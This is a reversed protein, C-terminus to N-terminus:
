SGRITRIIAEVVLLGLSVGVILLILNSFDSFVAGVYGLTSSVMEPTFNMGITTTFLMSFM